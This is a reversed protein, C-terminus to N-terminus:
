PRLYAWGRQQRLMLEVYGSATVKTGEILDDMAVHQAKLSNGCAFFEVGATMADQVDNAVLSDAKLMGLGAGINIVVIAVQKKGLEAQINRINGLVAHWKKPDDENIQIAIRNKATAAATKGAGVKPAPASAQATAMGHFLLCSLLLVAVRAPFSRPM